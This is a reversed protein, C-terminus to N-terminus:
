RSSMCKNGYAMIELAEDADLMSHLRIPRAEVVDPGAVPLLGRLHRPAVGAHQLVPGRSFRLRARCEGEEKKSAQSCSCYQM